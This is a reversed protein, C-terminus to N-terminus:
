ANKSEKYEAVIRKVESIPIKFHRAVYYAPKHKRACCGKQCKYSYKKQAKLMAAVRQPNIKTM